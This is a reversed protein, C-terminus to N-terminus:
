VEEWLGYSFPAVSKRFSVSFHNEENLLINLTFSEAGNSDIKTKIRSISKFLVGLENIDEQTPIGKKILWVLKPSFEENNDFKSLYDVVYEVIIEKVLFSTFNFDLSVSCFFSSDEFSTDNDVFDNDCWKGSLSNGSLQQYTGFGNRLGNKFEGLYFSNDYFMMMGFGTKDSNHYEGVYIEKESKEFGFGQFINNKFYGSQVSGDAYVITGMGTLSGKEWEGFLCTKDAKILVGRGDFTNGSVEGFFIGGDALDIKVPKKKVVNIEEDNLFNKLEITEEFDIDDACLDDPLFTTQFVVDDTIQPVSVMGNWDHDITEFSDSASETKRKIFYNTPESNSFSNSIVFPPIWSIFDKRSPPATMWSVDPEPFQFCEKVTFLKEVKVTMPNGRNSVWSIERNNRIYFALLLPQTVDDELYELVAKFEGQKWLAPAKAGGMDEIVTGNSLAVHKLKGKFGAGLLAKELSLYWGKQFTVFLMMDIHNLALYGCEEVLGSEESLVQFDFSTGNWTLLKYGNSVLEQLEHVLLICADKSLRPSDHWFKIQQTDSLAVAACTIGLPSYKKWNDIDDPLEKAIELDFSALKLTKESNPHSKAM